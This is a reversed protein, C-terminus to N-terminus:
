NQKFFAMRQNTLPERLNEINELSLFAPLYQDAGKGVNHRIESYSFEFGFEKFAAQWAKAHADNSNVLTGDVDFM